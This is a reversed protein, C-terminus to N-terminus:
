KIKKPKKKFLFLFNIVTIISGIIPLVFNFIIWLIKATPKKEYKVIFFLGSILLVAYVIAIICIQIPNLLM